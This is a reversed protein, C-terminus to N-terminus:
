GVCESVWDFLDICGVPRIVGFFLGVFVGEVVLM